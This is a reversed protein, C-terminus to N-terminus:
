GSSQRSTSRRDTGEAELVMIQRQQLAVKASRRVDKLIDRVAEYVALEDNQLGGEDLADQIMLELRAPTMSGDFSILSRGESFPVLTIGTKRELTRSASVVIVARRGFSILEAPPHTHTQKAEALRVIARSVDHDIDSLTQLVSVPLTM